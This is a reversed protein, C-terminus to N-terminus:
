SSGHRVTRGVAAGRRLGGLAGGGGAAGEQPGGAGGAEARRGEGGPGPLGEGGGTPVLGARVPGAGVVLAADGGVARGAGARRDAGAGAQVAQRVRQDDTVAAGGAVARLVGQAGVVQRQPQARVDDLRVEDGGLVALQHDPM